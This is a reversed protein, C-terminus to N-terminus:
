YLTFWLNRNEFDTSFCLMSVGYMVRLSFTTLFNHQILQIHCCAETYFPMYVESCLPCNPLFNLMKRQLPISTTNNTLSVDQVVGMCFSVHDVARGEDKILILLALLGYSKGKYPLMVFSPFCQNWRYDKPLRLYSSGSLSWPKESVLDFSPCQDTSKMRRGPQMCVTQLWYESFLMFVIANAEEYELSLRKSPAFLKVRIIVM